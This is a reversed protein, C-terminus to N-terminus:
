WFNVQLCKMLQESDIFQTISKALSLNSHSCVACFAEITQIHFDMLKLDESIEIIDMVLDEQPLTVLISYELEKETSITLSGNVASTVHYNPPTPNQRVWLSKSFGMLKFRPPCLPIEPTKSGKYPPIPTILHSSLSKCNEGPTFDFDVANKTSPTVVVTPFLKTGVHATFTVERKGETVTDGDSPPPQDTSFSIRGSSLELM